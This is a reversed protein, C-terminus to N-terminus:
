AGLCGAGDEGRAGAQHVEAGGAAPAGAATCLDLLCALVLFGLTAAPQRLGAPRWPRTGGARAQDNCVNDDALVVFGFAGRNLHRIQLAPQCRGRSASGCGAAASAAGAAPVPQRWQQWRPGRPRGDSNNVCQCERHDFQLGTAVSPKGRALWVELLSQVASAACRQRADHQRVVTYRTYGELDPQAPAGASTASGPGM